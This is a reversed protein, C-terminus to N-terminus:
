WSQGKNFKEYANHQSKSKTQEDGFIDDHTVIVREISYLLIIYM